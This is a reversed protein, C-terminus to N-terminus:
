EPKGQESTFAGRIRRWGTLAGRLCLAAALGLGGVVIATAGWATVLPTLALLLGVTLAGLAFVVFILAFLGFLALNRIGAAAVQARAQQFALETTAFTRADDALLRLEDLLPAMGAQEAAGDERGATRGPAMETDEQPDVM